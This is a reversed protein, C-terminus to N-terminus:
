PDNQGWIAMKAKFHDFQKKEWPNFPIIKFNPWSWQCITCIPHEPIQHWLDDLPWKLGNQQFPWASEEGVTYIPHDHFNTLIILSWHNWNPTWSNSTLPWRSTMKAWFPWKRRSITLSSRREPTSHSSRSLQDTHDHVFPVYPTNMFKLDFTMQLDIKAKEDISWVAEEGVSYIPHDHFIILIIQSWHVYPTNMFKLDFTMQLDLETMKNSRDLQERKWLISWIMM